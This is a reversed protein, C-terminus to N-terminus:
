LVWDARDVLSVDNRVNYWGLRLGSAFSVIGSTCGRFVASVAVLWWDVLETLNSLL